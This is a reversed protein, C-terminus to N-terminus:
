GGVLLGCANDAEPPSTWGFSCCHLRRCLADFCCRLGDRGFLAASPGCGLGGNASILERLLVSLTDQIANPERVELVFLQQRGHPIRHKDLHPGLLPHHLRQGRAQALVLVGRLRAGQRRLLGPGRRHGRRRPARRSWQCGGRRQPGGRGGGGACGLGGGAGLPLLRPRRLRGGAGFLLRTFRRLRRGPLVQGTGSVSRHAAAEPRRRAAPQLPGERRAPARRPVRQERAARAALPLQQQALPVSRLPARLARPARM